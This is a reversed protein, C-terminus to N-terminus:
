LCLLLLAFAQTFITRTKIINKMINEQLKQYTYV